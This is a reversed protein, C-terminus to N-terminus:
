LATLVAPQESFQLFFQPFFFTIRATPERVITQLSCPSCSNSQPHGFGQLFPYSHPAVEKGSDADRRQDIDAPALGAETRARVRRNEGGSELPGERRTCAWAPSDNFSYSLPSNGDNVKEANSLQCM